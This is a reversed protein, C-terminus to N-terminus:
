ESKCYNDWEIRVECNFCDKHPLKSCKIEGPLELDFACLDTCNVLYDLCDKCDKELECASEDYCMKM